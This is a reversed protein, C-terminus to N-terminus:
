RIQKWRISNLIAEIEKRCPAVDGIVDSDFSIAQVTDAGTLLYTTGRLYSMLPRRTRGRGISECPGSFTGSRELLLIQKGTIACLTGTLKDGDTTGLDPLEQLDVIQAETVSSSKLASQLAVALDPSVQVPSKIEMKILCDSWSNRRKLFSWRGSQQAKELQWSVPVEISEVSGLKVSVRELANGNSKKAAVSAVTCVTCMFLCALCLGM